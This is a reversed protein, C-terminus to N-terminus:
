KSRASMKLFVDKDGCFQDAQRICAKGSKNDHYCLIGSIELPNRLFVIFKGKNKKETM